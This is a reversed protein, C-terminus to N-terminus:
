CSLAGDDACFLGHRVVGARGAVYVPDLHDGCKMAVM